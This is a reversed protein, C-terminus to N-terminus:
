REPRWVLRAQEGRWAGSLALPAVGGDRRWRDLAALPACGLLEAATQPPAARRGSRGRGSEFVLRGRGPELLLCGAVETLPASVLRRARAYLDSCEDFIEVALVLARDCAGADLWMAGQWIARLTAPPGGLFIAYPGTVGFEIAVESPVVAPATYAFHIGGGGEIFSRNSAAYAAATSYLLATREGAIAARTTHGDELMTEVVRIALLCERTSRRHRDDRTPPRGLSRVPAGGGPRDTAEEDRDDGSLLGLARITPAQIV